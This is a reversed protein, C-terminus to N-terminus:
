QSLADGQLPHAAAFGPLRAVEEHFKPNGKMSCSGLAYMGTDICFNRQSIRTFHRMVELETLEPLERLDDQRLLEAPLESAPVDLEPLNTGYKGRASLEFIPPEFTDM